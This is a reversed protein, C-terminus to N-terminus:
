APKIARTAIYATMYEDLPGKWEKDSRESEYMAVLQFGALLQGGIQQSLTHGFELAEGKALKAALREPPLDRPESFPLSYRTEVDGTEEYLENDFIYIAPNMFGALLTGGPRLVRFTEQWVPLVDPAFVNSVPHFVLDFSEGGFRSLDAMDGEQTRIGLEHEDSVSRDQDLQRPSNDLVTVRAGAAALLPGQQGGGSALCLVEVGSLDPPFWDRPVPTLGTLVVSWDGRRAAEVQAADVPRTWM